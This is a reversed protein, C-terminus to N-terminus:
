TYAILNLSLPWKKNFRSGLKYSSYDILNPGFSSLPDWIEVKSFGVSVLSQSLSSNNFIAKHYNYPDDQGGMLVNKVLDLDYNSECYAKILLDFDPVSIRLRGHGPLLKRHFLTLLQISEEFSFHELFHCIYIEVISHDTFAGLDVTNTCLHIHSDARADINVWGQLNVTGCGIHLKLGKALTSKFADDTYVPLPKSASKVSLSIWASFIRVKRYIKKLYSLLSNM